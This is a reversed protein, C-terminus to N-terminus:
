IDIWRVQRAKFTALASLGAARALYVAKGIGAGLDATHHADSGITLIEGGMEHYWGLVPLAPYPEAPAQRWGSTNIELGMGSAIAAGLVARIEPELIGPDFPGYQVVGYRKVLDLHGLVDGLGSRAALLLEDFYPGYAQRQSHSDFFAAMAGPESVIAWGDAYDVLHVSLMVYDWAGKALWTRIEDERSAQYTIEVGQKLRVDREASPRAACAVERDYRAVDLCNYGADRPDLDGHECFGVEALGLEAARQVYQDISSRGDVSNDSHVHLDMLPPQRKV